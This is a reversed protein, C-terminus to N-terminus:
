QLLKLHTKSMKPHSWSYRLQMFAALTFRLFYDWWALARGKALIRENIDGQLSVLSLFASQLPACCRPLSFTAWGFMEGLKEPARSGTFSFHYLVTNLFGPEVTPPGPNFDQSYNTVQSTGNNVRRSVWNAWRFFLSLLGEILYNNYVHLFICSARLVRGSVLTRLVSGQVM